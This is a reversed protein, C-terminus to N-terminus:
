SEAKIDRLLKGFAKTYADHNKWRRFDGINRTNRMLQPWGGEVNMVVDDIRIPILVLRKERRERELANSGSDSVM